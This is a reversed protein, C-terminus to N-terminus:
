SSLYVNRGHLMGMNDAFYGLGLVVLFISINLRIDPVLDLIELDRGVLREELRDPNLHLATRLRILSKSTKLSQYPM